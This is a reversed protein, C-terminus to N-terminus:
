RQQGDFVERNDASKAPADQPTHQRQPLEIATRVRQLRLKAREPRSIPQDYPGQRVRGSHRVHSGLMGAARGVDAWQDGTRVSRARPGTLAKLV